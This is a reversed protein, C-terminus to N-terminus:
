CSKFLKQFANKIRDATDFMIAETSQNVVATPMTVYEHYFNLLNIDFMYSDEVIYSDEVM